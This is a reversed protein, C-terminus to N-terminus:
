HRRPAPRRAVTFRVNTTMLHDGAPTRAAGLVDRVAAQADPLRDVPVQELVGRVGISWMWALWHETDTFRTRYRASASYVEDFGAQGVIGAISESTDFPGQRLGREVIGGPVFTGVTRVARDFVPDQLLFTTFALRGGPRLAARASTLAVLPEPLFSLVFGALVVDFEAPPVDPREADGQAVSVTTLGRSAVEAATLEVMRASLDIGVVAGSPGVVEAAPFLVAGRGCGVDLVRDGPRVEARAVLEQGVPSFFEAGLQDYTPAVRDFLGAISRKQDGAEDAGM